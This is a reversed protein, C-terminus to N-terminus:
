LFPAFKQAFHGRSARDRITEQVVGLGNGNGLPTIPKFVM